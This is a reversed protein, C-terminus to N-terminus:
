KCFSVFFHHLKELQLAKGKCDRFPCSLTQVGKGVCKNNGWANKCLRDRQTVGRENDCGSFVFKKYLSKVM